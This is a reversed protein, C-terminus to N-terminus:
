GNSTRGRTKNRSVRQKYPPLPMEGITDSLNVVSDHQLLEFAVRAMGEKNKELVTAKFYGDKHFTAGEPLRKGPRLLCWWETAPANSSPHLLLCEM